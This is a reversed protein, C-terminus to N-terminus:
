PRIFLSAVEFDCRIVEVSNPGELVVVSDALDEDDDYDFLGTRDISLLDVFETRSITQHLIGSARVQGPPAQIEFRELIVRRPDADPKFELRIKWRLRGDSRVALEVIGERTLGSLDGLSFARIAQPGSVPVVAGETVTVGLTQVNRVNTFSTSEKKEQSKFAALQIKIGTIRRLESATYDRQLPLPRNLNDFYIFALREVEVGQPRKPIVATQGAYSRSIQKTQPNFKFRMMAEPHVLADPTYIIRITSGVPIPKAFTVTDDPKSPDLGSGEEFLIPVNQWDESDLPRAQGVPVSSGSKFQKELLFRQARNRTMDPRHSRDVWLPVFAVEGVRAEKLEVADRLGQEEFGGELLIRMTEDSVQQLALRRQIHGWSDLGASLVAVNVGAIIGMVTLSVLLEILTVGRRGAPFNKM